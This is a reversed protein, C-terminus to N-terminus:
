ALLAAIEEASKGMLDILKLGKAALMIEFSSTFAKKTASESDKAKLSSRVKNGADTKRQRNIDVLIKVAQESDSDSTLAEILEDVTDLQVFSAQASKMIAQGADDKGIEAEVTFEKTTM